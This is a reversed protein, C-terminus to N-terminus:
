IKVGKGSITDQKKRNNKVQQLGLKNKFSNNLPKDLQLLETHFLCIFGIDITRQGQSETNALNGYDLFHNFSSFAM